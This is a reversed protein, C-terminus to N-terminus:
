IFFDKNNFAKRREERYDEREERYFYGKRKQREREGTEQRVKNRTNLTNRQIDQRQRKQQDEQLLRFLSFIKQWRFFVRFM